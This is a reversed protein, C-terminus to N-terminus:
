TKGFRGHAIALVNHPLELVEDWRIGDESRLVKGPWLAGVYAGDGFTAVTPANTNPTREWAQGDPSRYTAGQGIGVFQKGDFIMTNIHEGEEGVVHDTWVLGDQSRMRLGHLGGGVFYGNGFAIDILTDKASARPVADFKDDLSKASLRAGYDGTFVVREQGFAVRRLHADRVMVRWDDVLAKRVSWSKGDTTQILEPPAGDTSVIGCVQKGSSFLLELREVYPKTALTSTNWSVGDPSDFMMWEGGFSGGVFCGGEFFCAYRLRMGERDTALNTWTKGDRSFVRLGNEGCAVFVPGQLAEEKM